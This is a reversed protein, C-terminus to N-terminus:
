LQFFTLNYDSYLPSRSNQKRDNGNQQNTTKVIITVNKSRKINQTQYMNQCCNEIGFNVLPKGIKTVKM